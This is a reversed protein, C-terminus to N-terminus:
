RALMRHLTDVILCFCLLLTTFHVSIMPSGAALLLLSDVVTHKEPYSMVFVHDRSPVTCLSGTIHAICAGIGSACGVARLARSIQVEFPLRVLLM